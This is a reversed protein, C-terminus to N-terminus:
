AKGRFIQYLKLIDSKSIAFKSTCATTYNSRRSCLTREFSVLNQFFGMEMNFFKPASSKGPFSYELTKIIQPKKLIETKSFAEKSKGSFDPMQVIKQSSNEFSILNQFYSM